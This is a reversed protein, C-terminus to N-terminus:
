DEDTEKYAPPTFPLLWKFGARGAGSCSKLPSPLEEILQEESEESDARTSSEESSTQSVMVEKMDKVETGM